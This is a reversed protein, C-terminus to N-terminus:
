PASLFERLAAIVDASAEEHPWHGVPLEVVHANPLAQRWRQVMAPPFATDKTGWVILVPKQQLIKLRRWLDGYFTSSGLLARAFPWLVQVRSHRDPYVSLYQHHIAPTLKKRDGWASPAIIRLSANLTGYMFRGFAGSVLRARRAMVPENALSWAWTNILVVRRVREPHALAHSLGIPGGFDHLVATYEGPEHRDLFDSLARAHAEPTYAFDEPRESLGMGLLDPAVCRYDRSLDRILHRWEFSWTPTGHVFLLKEGDGEAVFHMRGQDLEAWHPEFPYASRDLWDPLHQMTTTTM